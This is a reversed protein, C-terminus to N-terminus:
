RQMCVVMCVCARECSPVFIDALTEDDQQEDLEDDREQVDKDLVRDLPQLLAEHLGPVIGCLHPQGTHEISSSGSTKLVTAQAACSSAQTEDNTHFNLSNKCQQMSM